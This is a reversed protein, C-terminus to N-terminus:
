KPIAGTSRAELNDLRANIQNLTQTMNQFLYPQHNELTTQSHGQQTHTVQAYLIEDKAMNSAFKRAPLPKRAEDKRKQLQKVIVCGRYNAPHAEGCNSCEPTDKPKLCKKTPQNKRMKRLGVNHGYLIETYPLLTPM